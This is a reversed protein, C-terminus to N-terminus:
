AGSNAGLAVGAAVGSVVVEVDQGALLPGVDGALKLALDIAGTLDVVQVATVDLLVLHGLVAEGELVGAAPDRGHHEKAEGVAEEAGEIDRGQPASGVDSSDLHNAVEQSALDLHPPMQLPLAYCQLM